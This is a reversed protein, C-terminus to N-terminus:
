RIMWDLGLELTTTKVSFTLSSTCVISVYCGVIVATVDLPRAPLGVFLQQYQQPAMSPSFMRNSLYPSSLREAACSFLRHLVTPLSSHLIVM